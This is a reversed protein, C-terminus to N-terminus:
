VAQVCTHAGSWAGKLDAGVHAYFSAVAPRDDHKRTFCAYTGPPPHFFILLAFRAGLSTSRM